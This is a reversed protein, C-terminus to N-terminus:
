CDLKAVATSVIDAATAVSVSFDNVVMDIAAMSDAGANKVACVRQGETLLQQPTLYVYLPQLKELYEGQDAQAPAAAIGASASTIAIVAIPVRLRHIM